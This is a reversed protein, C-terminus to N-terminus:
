PQLPASWQIVQNRITRHLFFSKPANKIDLIVNENIKSDDDIFVKETDIFDLSGIRVYRGISVHKARIVTLFGISTNSGIEAYKAEVISGIGIKVNKGIKYGKLKYYLQYPAQLNKGKYGAMKYAEKVTNGQQIYKLLLYNQETLEIDNKKTISKDKEM